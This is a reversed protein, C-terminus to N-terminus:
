ELRALRDADQSPPASVHIVLQLIRGLGRHLGRDEIFASLHDALQAIRWSARSQITRSPIQMVVRRVQDRQAGRRGFMRVYKFLGPEAPLVRAGDRM